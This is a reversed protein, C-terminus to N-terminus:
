DRRRRGDSGRSEERNSRDFSFVQSHFGPDKGRERPKRDNRDMAAQAVARGVRSMSQMSQRLRSRSEHERTERREQKQEAKRQSISYEHVNMAREFRRVDAASRLEIRSYGMKEYNSASLGGADGPFRCSGDPAQFVLIPNMSWQTEKPLLAQETPGQCTECPPTKPWEAIPRHYEFVTGCEDNLCKVDILPVVAM